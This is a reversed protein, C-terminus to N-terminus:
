AIDTGVAAIKSQGPAVSNPLPRIIRAPLKRWASNFPYLLISSRIIQQLERRSVKIRTDPYLVNAARLKNLTKVGILVPWACALRLRIWSRPLDLVYSWADALNAEAKTVLSHYLPRLKEANAPDLLDAPELSLSRLGDEPLYCRGMRLDSPLDRLINVLQLGQGFQIGERILESESVAPPPSLHRLCIRTWFEGVCGAVRYTYDDLEETSQLAGINQASAHGFRILDLEQGSTITDLVRQILQRDGPDFQRLLKLADGIRELLIREGETSQHSRLEPVLFPKPDPPQNELIRARLDQLTALRKEVSVAGTDAITDTARALLYALGIQNRVAAPLLRLTLYFSRSVDRLLDNLLFQEDARPLANM